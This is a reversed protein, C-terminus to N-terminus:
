FYLSSLVKSLYHDCDNGDKTTKFMIKEVGNADNTTM